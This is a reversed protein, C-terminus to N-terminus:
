NEFPWGTIGLRAHFERRFHSLALDDSGYEFWNVFRSQEIRAKLSDVEAADAGPPLRDFDRKLDTFEEMDTQCRMSLKTDSSGFIKSANEGLRNLATLDAGVVTVGDVKGLIFHPFFSGIPESFITHDLNTGRLTADRFRAFNLLSYQMQTGTLDCDTLDAAEQRSRWLIAGAFKGNRLTCGDLDPDSLDLRFRQSAELAVQRHSRRGIVDIATQIDIRPRKRTTLDPTPDLNEAKANERLYACLIEMVRLHDRGKDYSVSDQAIRELSLIAGIRVEINPRTGEAVLPRGDPGLLPKGDKGTLAGKVTKEAGLQEVAKSIRDTVHGEKQFGLARHRIITNWILFPASLLAVVLAGTGLNGGTNGNGGFLTSGLIAFAAAIALVFPVLLVLGVLAGLPRARGFDPTGNLGLWALLDHRDEDEPTRRDNM